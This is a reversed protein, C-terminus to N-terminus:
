QRTLLKVGEANTFTMEAQVPGAFTEKELDPLKHEGLTCGAQKLMVALGNIYGKTSAVRAPKATRDSSTEVMIVVKGDSDQKLAVVKVGVHKGDVELPQKGILFGDPPEPMSLLVG